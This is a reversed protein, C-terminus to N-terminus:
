FGDRAQVTKVLHPLYNNVERLTENEESEAAALWLFTGILVASAIWRKMKFRREQEALHGAPTRAKLRRAKQEAL